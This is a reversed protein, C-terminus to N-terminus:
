YKTCREEPYLVYISYTSKPEDDKRFYLLDRVSFPYIFAILETFWFDSYPFYKKNKFFSNKGQSLLAICWMGFIVDCIPETCKQTYIKDPIINKAVSKVDDLKSYQILLM